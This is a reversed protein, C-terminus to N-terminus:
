AYFILDNSNPPTLTTPEAWTCFARSPIDGWQAISAERPENGSDRRLKAAKLWSIDCAILAAMIDGLGWAIYFHNRM